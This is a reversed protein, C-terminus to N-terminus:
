FRGPEEMEASLWGLEEAVIQDKPTCCCDTQGFETRCLAKLGSSRRTRPSSGRATRGVETRCVCVMQATWWFELDELGVRRAMREVKTPKGVFVGGGVRPFTRAGIKKTNRGHHGSDVKLPPPTREHQRM